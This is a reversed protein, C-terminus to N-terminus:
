VLNLAVVADEVGVGVAASVGVDAVLVKQVGDCSCAVISSSTAAPFAYTCIIIFFVEEDEHWTM